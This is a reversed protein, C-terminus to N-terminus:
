SNYFRSGSRANEIQANMVKRRLTVDKISNLDAEGAEIKSQWYQVDDPAQQSTRKSKKPVADSTKKSEQREKLEAQFWKSNLIATQSKGTETMTEKLFEVDDESEIRLAESKTNYFALQGYDLGDSKSPEIKDKKEGKPQLEKLRAEAKEARIKQNKAIEAWDKEDSKSTEESQEETTEEVTEDNVSESNDM